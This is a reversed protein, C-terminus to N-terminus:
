GKIKKLSKMAEPLEIMFLTLYHESKKLNLFANEINLKEFINEIDEMVGIKFNEMEDIAIALLHFCEFYQKILYYSNKYPANIDRYMYEKRVNSLVNLFKKTEDRRKKFEAKLNERTPKEKKFDMVKNFSEDINKNIESAVNFMINKFDLLFMKDSYNDNSEFDYKVKLQKEDFYSNTM